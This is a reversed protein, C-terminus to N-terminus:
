LDARRRCQDDKENVKVQSTMSSLAGISSRVKRIIRVILAMKTRRFVVRNRILPTRHEKKRPLDTHAITWM